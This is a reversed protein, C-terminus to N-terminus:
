TSHPSARGGRVEEDSEACCMGGAGPNTFARSLTYYEELAMLKGAQLNPGKYNTTMRGQFSRGLFCVSSVEGSEEPGPATKDCLFKGSCM